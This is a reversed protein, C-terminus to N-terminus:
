RSGQALGSPSPIIREVNRRHQISPFTSRCRGRRVTMHTEWSSEVCVGEYELIVGFWGTSLREQRQLPNHISPDDAVGEVSRPLPLLIEQDHLNELVHAPVSTSQTPAFRALIVRRAGRSSCRHPLCRPSLMSSRSTSPSSSLPLFSRRTDLM